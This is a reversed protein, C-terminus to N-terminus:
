RSPSDVSGPSPRCTETETVAARAESETRELSRLQALHSRLAGVRTWALYRQHLHGAATRQTLATVQRAQFAKARLATYHRRLLLNTNALVMSRLKGSLAAKVRKHHRAFRHWLQFRRNMLLAGAVAAMKLLPEHLRVLLEARRLAGADCSEAIEVDCRHTGEEENIARFKPYFMMTVFPQFTGRVNLLLRTRDTRETEMMACQVVDRRKLWVMYARETSEENRAAQRADAEDRALEARRPGYVGDRAEEILETHERALDSLYCHYLTALEDRDLADQHELLVQATFASEEEDLLKRRVCLEADSVDATVVDQRRSNEELVIHARRNAEEIESTLLQMEATIGDVLRVREFAENVAIRRGLQFTLLSLEIRADYHRRPIRETESVSVMDEVVIQEATSVHHENGQRGMDVAAKAAPADEAVPAAEIAARAANISAAGDLFRRRIRSVFLIAEDNELRQRLQTEKTALDILENWLMADPSVEITKQPKYPLMPSFLSQAGNNLPSATATQPGMSDISDHSRYMAASLPRRVTVPTETSKDAHRPPSDLSELVLRRSPTSTEYFAPRVRTFLTEGGKASYPNVHPLQAAADRQDRSAAAPSLTPMALWFAVDVDLSLDVHL